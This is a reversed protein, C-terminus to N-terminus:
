KASPRSCTDGKSSANRAAGTLGDRAKRGLGLKKCLRALEDQEDSSLVSMEESIRAAHDPFYEGILRLGRDTLHIEFARRDGPKQRRTVLGRKQLNDVVMTLNGSTRLIKKAIEGQMLPGLHYLAELVGFQSVTLDVAALRRHIYATLSEAVRMLKVYAGLARAQDKSYRGSEKKM